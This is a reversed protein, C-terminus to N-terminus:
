PVYWKEGCPCQYHQKMHAWDTVLMPGKGHRGHIAVWKRLIM